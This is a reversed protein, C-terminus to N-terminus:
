RYVQKVIERAVLRAGDVSMHNDDFYYAVGGNAAVCSVERCFLKAPDVVIVEDPLQSLRAKVFKSRMEWWNSSVGDVRDAPSRAGLLLGEVHQPLEPAQLVLVVKKGHAIFYRLVDVYSVWRQERDVDSVGAPIDPYVRESSGFLAANIRYSVVVVRIDNNAAIYEAAEKTWESCNKYKGAINKGFTPVCGSFSFQKLKVNLAGLADALASTLEVAHSDGFTALGLRGAHFECARAAKLYNAGSTHCDSRRPSSTATQLVLQQAPTAKLNLFGRTFNGVLGVVIFIISGIATLIFIRGRGHRNPDRFPREICKWSGYGLLMAFAALGVLLPKGLEGSSMYRAFAFVPQHWLYTSYSILGIGVVAKNGLLKGVTTQETAYLIILAAGITPVLAYLGPFPTEKNFEVVAYSILLFGVASGIESIIRSPHKRGDVHCFAVFAGILLEWSRAPLLYFGADPEVLIAWQAMTLSIVAVVGLIALIGRKGLRWSLMLFMPFLLYYQEEVALSWTHLLPKLEASTDFYGSTQWFLFNSAYVSVAVLSQSFSRIEHPLLWLWAFPLCAFLVVFLAPLIRRARREYFKVLSFSGVRIESIIISTILYGSIVFFVDVGVFGGSFIQFGAHFFIVPIVAFARLGDVERRYEM